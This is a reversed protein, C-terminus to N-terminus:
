RTTRSCKSLKASKSVPNIGYVRVAGSYDAPRILRDAKETAWESSLCSCQTSAQVGYVERSRKGPKKQRM